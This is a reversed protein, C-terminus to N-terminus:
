DTEGERRGLVFNSREAYHPTYGCVEVSAGDTLLEVGHYHDMRYVKAGNAGYAYLHKMLSQRHKAAVQANCPMIVVKANCQAIFDESLSEGKGHHAAKLLFVDALLEKRNSRMIDGAQRECCDGPFLATFRRFQLKVVINLDNIDYRDYDTGPVAVIDFFFDDDVALRAGPDQDTVIRVIAQRENLLQELEKWTEYGSPNQALIVEDPLPAYRIQGVEVRRDQLLDIVGGYHDRHMHSVILEDIRTIGQELLAPILIAHGQGKKGADLLTHFTRDGKAYNILFSDAPLTPPEGLMTHADTNLDFALIRCYGAEVPFPAKPMYRCANM